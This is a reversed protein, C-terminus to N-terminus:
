KIADILQVIPHGIFTYNLAITTHYVWASLIAIKSRMPALADLKEQQDRKANDCATKLYEGGTVECQSRVYETIDDVARKEKEQLKVLTRYLYLHGCGILVLVFVAAIIM